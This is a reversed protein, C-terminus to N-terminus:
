NIIHLELNYIHIIYVLYLLINRRYFKPITEFLILNYKINNSVMKYQVLYMIRTYKNSIIEINYLHWQM